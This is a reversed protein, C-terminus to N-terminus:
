KRTVKKRRVSWVILVVIMIFLPVIILGIHVFDSWSTVWSYFQGVTAKLGQANEIWSGEMRHVGLAWAYQSLIEDKTMTTVALNSFDSLEVLTHPLIRVDSEQDLKYKEVLDSLGRPGSACWSYQYPTYKKPDYPNAAISDLMKKLHTCGGRSALWCTGFKYNGFLLKNKTLNMASLVLNIKPDEFLFDARKFSSYDLDAYLSVKETTSVYLLLYRLIDSKSSYSPALHYAKLLEPSYQDLIPLCEDEGYIHHIFDPYQQKWMLSDEYQEPRTERLHDVGQIWIQIIQATM